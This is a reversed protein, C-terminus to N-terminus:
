HISGGSRGIAVFSSTSVSRSTSCSSLESELSCVTFARRNESRKNRDIVLHVDYLGETSSNAAIYMQQPVELEVGRHNQLLKAEATYTVNSWQHTFAVSYRSAPELASTLLQVHFPAPTGCGVRAPLLNRLRVKCAPLESPPRAPVTCLLLVASSGTGSSNARFNLEDIMSLDCPRRQFRGGPQPQDLWNLDSLAQGAHQQCLYDIKNFFQQESFCSETLVSFRVEEEGSVGNLVRVSVMDSPTSSPSPSTFDSSLVAGTFCPSAAISPPASELASFGPSIAGLSSPCPSAAAPEPGPSPWTNSHCEEATSALTSDTGHAVAPWNDQPGPWSHRANWWKSDACVDDEPGDGRTEEKIPFAVSSRRSRAGIGDCQVDLRAGPPLSQSPQRGTHRWPNASSLTPTSTPTERPSGDPPTESLAQLNELSEPASSAKSLRWARKASLQSGGGQQPQSLRSRGPVMERGELGLSGESHRPFPWSAGNAMAFPWSSERSLARDFPSQTFSEKSPLVEPQDESGQATACVIGAQVAPSAKSVVSLRANDSAAALPTKKQAQTESEYDPSQSVDEAHDSNVSSTGGVMPEEADNHPPSELGGYEDQESESSDLLCENEDMVNYEWRHPSTPDGSSSTHSARSPSEPTHQVAVPTKVEPAAEPVPVDAAARLSGIAAVALDEFKNQNLEQEEPDAPDALLGQLARVDEGLKLLVALLHACVDDSKPGCIQLAALLFARSAQVHQARDQKTRAVSALQAQAIGRRILDDVELTSLDVLPSLGHLSLNIAADEDSVCCGM